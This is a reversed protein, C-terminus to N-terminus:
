RRKNLKKLLIRRHRSEDRAINPLGLKRYEKSAKKEDAILYKLKKKTLKM